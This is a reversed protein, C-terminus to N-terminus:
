GNTAMEGTMAVGGNLSSKVITTPPLSTTWLLLQRSTAPRTIGGQQTCGDAKRNM